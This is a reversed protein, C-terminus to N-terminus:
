QTDITIRPGAAHRQAPRLLHEDRHPHGGAVVEAALLVVDVGGGVDAEALRQEAADDPDGAEVPVDVEPYRLHAASLCATTTRLDNTMM